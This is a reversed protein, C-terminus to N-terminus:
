TIIAFYIRDKDLPRQKRSFSFRGFSLMKGIETTYNPEVLPMLRLRSEDLYSIEIKELEKLLKSEQDTLNTTLLLM